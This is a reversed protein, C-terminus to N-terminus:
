IDRVMLISPFAFDPGMPVAIPEVRSFGLAGYFGEGNLSSYCEFRKIGGVKAVRECEEYLMRGIGKGLWDPHTAFHRIHGLGSDIEGSGPRERTWGGCGVTTGEESEVLYYTGSRLLKPNANTMLPLAKTLISDEYHGKMLVPYCAQLLGTIRPKDEPNSTRNIFPPM